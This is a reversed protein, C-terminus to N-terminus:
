WRVADTLQMQRDEAAFRRELASVTWKDKFRLGWAGKNWTNIRSEMELMRTWLDPYHKRLTRLEGHRQLPCCFCSVRAFHDYLGGWDYGLGLCYELCDKETMGWEILPYRVPGSPKLPDGKVRNEEDAAFGICTVGAPVSRRYRILTDMKQRTCWRRGGFPWGNGIHHVQGKMPGKRAVVPREFMWYDFSRPSRLTAIPLGTKEEVLKLHDAMEPFDWDTEFYVVSHVPEGRELMWHLMATSDKGGSLNLIHNM